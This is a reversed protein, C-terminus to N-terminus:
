LPEAPEIRFEQDLLANLKQMVRELRIRDRVSAEDSTPHLPEAMAAECRKSLPLRINSGGTHFLLQNVEAVLRTAETIKEQAGAESIEGTAVRQLQRCEFVRCRIPRADYISCRSELHAPCPQLICDQKRKRKLKLGLSALERPSDGPQLKVIHFM